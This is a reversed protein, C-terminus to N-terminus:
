EETWCLQARAARGVGRASWATQQGRSPILSPFLGLLDAAATACSRLQWQGRTHTHTHTDAPSGRMAEVDGLRRADRIACRRCAALLPFGTRSGSEVGAVCAARPSALSATLSFASLVFRSLSETLFYLLSLTKNTQRNSKGGLPLSIFM